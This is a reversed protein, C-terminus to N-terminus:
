RLVALAVPAVGILLIALISALTWRLAHSREIRDEHAYDPERAPSPRVQAAAPAYGHVIDWAATSATIRTMRISTSTRQRCWAPYTVVRPYTITM